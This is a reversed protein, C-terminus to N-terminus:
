TLVLLPIVVLLNFTTLYGYNFIRILNKGSFFNKPLFKEKRISRIYYKEGKM